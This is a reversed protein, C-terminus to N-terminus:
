ETNSSMNHALLNVPVKVDLHFSIADDNAKIDSSTLKAQTHLGARNMKPQLSCSEMIAIYRRYLGVDIVCV